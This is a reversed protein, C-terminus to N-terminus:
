PLDRMGQRRLRQLRPRDPPFPPEQAPLRPRRVAGRHVDIPAVMPHVPDLRSGPSQDAHSRVREGRPTWRDWRARLPNGCGERLLGLGKCFGCGGGGCARCPDGCGDGHHILGCGRGRGCVTGTGDCSDCGNGNGNCAGCAHCGSVLGKLMGIGGYLSGLSGALPNDKAYCGFPIPPAYYPGGTNVDVADVARPITHHFLDARASGASIASILAFAFAVGRWTGSRM